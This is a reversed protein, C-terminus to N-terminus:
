KLVEIIVISTGSLYRFMQPDFIMCYTSYGLFVFFLIVLCAMVIIILGVVLKEFDRDM